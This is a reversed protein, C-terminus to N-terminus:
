RGRMWRLLRVSILHWARSYFSKLYVAQLLVGLGVVAARMPETRRYLREVDFTLAPDPTSIDKYFIDFALTVGLENVILAAGIGFAVAIIRRWKPRFTLLSTCTSMIVLAFGSVYAARLVARPACDFKFAFFVALRVLLLTIVFGALTLFALDKGHNVVLERWLLVVTSRPAKGQGPHPALVPESLLTALTQEIEALRNAMTQVMSVAIEPRCIRLRDFVQDPLALVDVPTLTIVTASRLEGTLSAMEGITAGPGIEDLIKRPGVQTHVSVEARGRVIVYVEAGFELETVIRRNAPYHRVIAQKAVAALTEQDLTSLLPVNRLSAIKDHQNM